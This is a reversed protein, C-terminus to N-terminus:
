LLNVKEKMRLVSREANFLHLANLSVWKVEHSEESCVITEERSGTLLFRIDYHLHEPMEKRTPITHIDIDFIDSKFPTIKKLGTEEDAERLAVRLVQDDGDAHGGPQLWKNLKAHHVLLVYEFHEDIIWSSGTIHGPLHTREFCNAHQLLELFPKVFAKEEAFSTKYQSLQSILEQRGSL